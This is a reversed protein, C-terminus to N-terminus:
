LRAAHCPKELRAWDNSVAQGLSPPLKSALVSIGEAGAPLGLAKLHGSRDEARQRIAEIHSLIAQGLRTLAPGEQRSLLRQQELLQKELQQCTDLDTRIDQLLAALRERVKM